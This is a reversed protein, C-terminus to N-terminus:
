RHNPRDQDGEGKFFISDECTTVYHISINKRVYPEFYNPIINKDDFGKCVFGANELLAEKVGCCYLDAYEYGECDILRELSAGIRELSDV